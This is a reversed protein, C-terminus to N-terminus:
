PFITMYLVNPCAIFSWCLILWSLTICFFSLICDWPNSMDLNKISDYNSKKILDLGFPYIPFPYRFALIFPPFCIHLHFMLPIFVLWWLIAWLIALHKHISWCQWSWLSFVFHIFSISSSHMISSKWTKMMTSIWPAM